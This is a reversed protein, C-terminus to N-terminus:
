SAVSFCFGQGTISSTASTSPRTEWKQAIARLAELANQDAGKGAYILALGPAAAGTASTITSVNSTTTAIPSGHVGGDGCAQLAILAFACIVFLWARRFEVGSFRMVKGFLPLELKYM